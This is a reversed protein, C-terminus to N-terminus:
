VTVILLVVGDPSPPMTTSWIQSLRYPCIKGALPVQVAPVTPEMVVVVQPARVTAFPPEPDHVKVTAWPSFRFTTSVTVTLPWEDREAVVVKPGVEDPVTVTVDSSAGVVTVVFL